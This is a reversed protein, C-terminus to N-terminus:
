LPKEMVLNIGVSDGYPFELTGTQVFGHKKYFSQGRQNEEWVGLWISGAGLEKATKICHELLIEGLGTGWVRELLYIRKLEVPDPSTISAHTSGTILKAYGVAKGNRLVIYFRSAPDAIEAELVAIEFSDHIYGALDGPEDQEFYAEYFTTSALVSILVADGEAATRITIDQKQNDM